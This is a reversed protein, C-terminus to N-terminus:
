VALRREVEAWVFMVDQNNADYILGAETLSLGGTLQVHPYDTFSKWFGGWELGVTKALAGIKLYDLNKSWSWQIGAQEVDGDEVIDVALGFNHWSKGGKAKTVIKGPTTRGQAYLADQEAFTRVGMFAGFSLDRAALLYLLQSVKDALRPYVKDLVLRDADLLIRLEEQSIMRGAERSVEFDKENAQSVM